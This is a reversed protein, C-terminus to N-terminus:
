HDLGVWRLNKGRVDWRSWRRYQDVRVTRSQFRDVAISSIPWLPRWHRRSSISPVFRATGSRSAELLQRLHVPDPKDTGSCPTDAGCRYQKGNRRL